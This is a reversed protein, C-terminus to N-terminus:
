TEKIQKKLVSRLRLMAPKLYADGYFTRFHLDQQVKDIAQGQLVYHKIFGKLIADDDLGDYALDFLWTAKDEMWIKAM